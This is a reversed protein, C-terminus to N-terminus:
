LLHSSYIKMTKNASVIGYCNNKFHSKGLIVSKVSFWFACLFLKLIEMFIEILESYYLNLLNTFHKMRLKSKLKKFHPLQWNTKMEKQTNDRINNFYIQIHFHCWLNTHKTTKRNYM